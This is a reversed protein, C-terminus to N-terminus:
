ELSENDDFVNTPGSIPIGMMRLRYRLGDIMEIAIKM